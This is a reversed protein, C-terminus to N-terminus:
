ILFCDIMGAVVSIVVLIRAIEFKNEKKSIFPFNKRLLYISRKYNEERLRFFGFVPM